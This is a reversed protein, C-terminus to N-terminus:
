QGVNYLNKGTYTVFDGVRVQNLRNIWIAYIQGFESSPLGYCRWSRCQVSTFLVVTSLANKCIIM